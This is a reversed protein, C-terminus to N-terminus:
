KMQRTLSYYNATNQTRYPLGGTATSISQSVCTGLIDYGGMICHLFGNFIARTIFSSLSKSPFQFTYCSSPIYRYNPPPLPHQLCKRSIPFIIAFFLINFNLDFQHNFDPYFPSFIILIVHLNNFKLHSSFEIFM